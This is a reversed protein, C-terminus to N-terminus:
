DRPAPRYPKVFRAGNFTHTCCACSPEMHELRLAPDVKALRNQADVYLGSYYTNDGVRVAPQRDEPRRAGLWFIPDPSDLRAVAESFVEDWDDGVRSILFRFLPTYDRGHRHHAHMSGRMSQDCKAAKANRAWRAEGGHGHTVGHTRTNVSRYLPKKERANQRAVPETM